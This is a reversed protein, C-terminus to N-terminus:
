SAKRLFAAPREGAETTFGLEALLAEACEGWTPVSLAPPPGAQAVAALEMVRAAMAQAVDSDFFLVNSLRQERFVPLDRALVWRSHAAAEVVPLGFGENHSAIFLARCADYLMCLGEDSVGELWHLRRGWEPHSRIREQLQETKWGRKGVIVLDPSEAPHTSWLHEFAALAQDYAKRPEITGVMLIAPRFRLREVLQLLEDSTGTSPLSGAIDAGLQIRSIRPGPSRDRELFRQLDLAVEDSICIARDVDSSLVSYWRRVNETTSSNFWEPRMLPLLDYVILNISVGHARWARLQARYKPIFQASLDLGLFIDGSRASVCKGDSVTPTTSSISAYCYGHRNTAYVPVLEFENGARRKLESWVARVVRQIGTQADSQIIASMDVLLRPKGAGPAVFRGRNRWVWSIRSGLSRVAKKTRRV